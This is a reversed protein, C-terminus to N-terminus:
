SGLVLFVKIAQLACLAGSKLSLNKVKGKPFGWWINKFGKDMQHSLGAPMFFSSMAYSPIASAVAKILVTRGVQSLTKARRGDIKGRLKEFIGSFASTKSKGFVIPRGLHRSTLPTSQHSYYGPYLHHYLNIVINKSFIISSKNTNVYQDSCSCYKNMSNKIIIAEGSTAQSFIVL